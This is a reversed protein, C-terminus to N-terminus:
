ALAKNQTGEGPTVFLMKTPVDTHATHWTGRPVIVFSGPVSLEAVTGRGEFEFSARGSLLCVLEDGAPHMEWTDWDGEFGFCSVLVRGKFEDFRRDLEDWITPTVTVPVASKDPQLVVFTSALDLVSM